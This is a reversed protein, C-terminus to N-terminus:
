NFVRVATDHIESIGYSHLVIHMSDARQKSSCCWRRQNPTNSSTHWYIAQGLTTNKYLKSGIREMRQNWHRNQKERYDLSTTNLNPLASSQHRSTKNLQCCAEANSRIPYLPYRKAGIWMGIRRKGDSSAWHGTKETIVSMPSLLANRM